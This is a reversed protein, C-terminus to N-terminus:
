REQTNPGYCYGRVIGAVEGATTISGCAVYAENSLYALAESVTHCVAAVATGCAEFHRALDTCPLARNSTTQTVVVKPFEPALLEVIGRVDKDALVACLLTPRSAVHPEIARIASLFVAVSQPNHCADILGLPQTRVVDFRGPTPCSALSSRLCTVELPRQLYEEVLSVACAINPAQYAPKIVELSDYSARNTRVQLCLPEGLHNPRSCVHFQASPLEVHDRCVGPQMVGAADDPHQPRLLVPVVGQEEARHLFVDEVSPPTATGVGLVCMRGHQIVAAKEGAIAELTDGLVHTHDLGIGTITVARISKAASTADWRGGLGVELVAVEVGAEAFATLAAVTLLDFETIDYPRKGAATRRGNVRRGSEAAAAIGRAFLEESIPRGGIEMRETYSVLEPSTYLAVNIGEGALIAAAYRSTSTKGNTGAVQLCEYRLDPDGLEHLMDEVTEILPCIGFRLASSLTHLAEDYSLPAVDFPIRYAM